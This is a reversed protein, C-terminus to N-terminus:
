NPTKIQVSEQLVTAFRTILFAADKDISYSSTAVTRPFIFKYLRPVNQEISDGLRPVTDIMLFDKPDRVDALSIGPGKYVLSPINADYSYVGALLELNMFPIGKPSFAIHATPKTTKLAKNVVDFDFESQINLHAMLHFFEFPPLGLELLMLSYLLLSGTFRPNCENAYIENRKKDYLFDIGFIGKYGAAALHKGVLEIAEKAKNEIEDSWDRFGLDNGFFIGNPPVGHLSEPVDILQLQLPGSLTGQPMVCGLMSTSYGEIFPAVTVSEFGTSDIVLIRIMRAFDEESRIFFTGENGGTEKDARQVVFAGGTEDWIRQFSAAQFEVRAYIKSPVSPLGMKKILDRFPGKYKVDEFTKPNNGIWPINMRELDQVIKDTMTYFMLKPPIRRSKLFNQFIYNGILYGTGHVKKAIDPHKDELVYMNLFQEM